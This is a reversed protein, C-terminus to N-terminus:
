GDTAETLRTYEALSAYCLAYFAIFFYIALDQDDEIVDGHAIANRRQRITEHMFTSFIGDFFTSILNHLNKQQSRNKGPLKFETEGDQEVIDGGTELVLDTLIGEFQLTIGALFSRYHDSEFEMLLDNLL